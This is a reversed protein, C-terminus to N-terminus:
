RSTSPAEGASLDPDLLEIDLAYLLSMAEPLSFRAGKITNRPAAIVYGTARTLDAGTLNTREFRSGSLDCGSLNAGTLDTGSFDAERVLSDTLTARPLALAAFTAYDLVCRRWEIAGFLGIPAGWRAATWDIGILKCAEFRVGHLSTGALDALSLDCDRFRCDILRCEVLPAEALACNMFRCDRFELGRLREGCLNLGRFTRGEYDLAALSEV